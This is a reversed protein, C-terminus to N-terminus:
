SNTFIKKKEEPTQKRVLNYSEHFWECQGETQAGAM